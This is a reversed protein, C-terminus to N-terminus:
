DRNLKGRHRHTLREAERDRRSRILSDRKREETEGRGTIRNRDKRGTEKLNLREDERDRRARTLSDRKDRM